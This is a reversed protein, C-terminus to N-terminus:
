VEDKKDKEGIVEPEAGGEGEAGEEELRPALVSAVALEPDSLIDLTADLRIDAVTLHDGIALASVDVDVSEPIHVPLGAIELEFLSQDLVGGLKVGEADGKLHIPVHTELKETMSIEQFDAHLLRGSVPHHQVAKLVVLREGLGDIDLKLIMSEGHHQLIMGFDHADVQLSEAAAGNSYIVGPVSGSKRLRKAVGGGGAERRQAALVLQEAM